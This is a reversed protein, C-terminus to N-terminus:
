TLLTFSTPTCVHGPATHADVADHSMKLRLQLCYTWEKM